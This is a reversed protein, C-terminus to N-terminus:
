VSIASRSGMLTSSSSDSLTASSPVRGDIIASIENRDAASDIDSSRDGRPGSFLRALAAWIAAWSDAGGIGFCCWGDWGAENWDM